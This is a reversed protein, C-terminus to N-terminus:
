ELLLALCGKGQSTATSRFHLTSIGISATSCCPCILAHGLAEFLEMVPKLVGGVEEACSDAAVFSLRCM